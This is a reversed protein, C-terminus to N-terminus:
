SAVTGIRRYARELHRQLMELGVGGGGTSGRLHELACLATVAVDLLEKEVDDWSHTQGKRPNFATAGVLAEAVEGAEEQVKAAWLAVMTEWSKNKNPPHEAFWEVLAKIKESDTM